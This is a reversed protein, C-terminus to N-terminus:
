DGCFRKRPRTLRGCGAMDAEHRKIWSRLTEPSCGIKTAIAVITMWQTPYESRQEQVLRIARQKVEPAYKSKM